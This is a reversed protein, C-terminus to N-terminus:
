LLLVCARNDHRRVGLHLGKQDEQGFTDGGAAASESLDRRRLYLQGCSNGSGAGQISKGSTDKGQQGTKQATGKDLDFGHARFYEVANELPMCHLYRLETLGAIFSSTYQSNLLPAAPASGKYIKEDQVYKRVKYIIKKFRMPEMVYRVVDCEGIFTAAEPKFDPSDPEVVVTEVECEPHTKRKAGNNTRKKQPKQQQTESSASVTPKAQRESPSGQLRQVAQRAAKEKSLEAGKGKIVDELSAIQKRLEDVTAM